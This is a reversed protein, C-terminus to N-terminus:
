GAAIGCNTESTEFLRDSQRLKIGLGDSAFHFHTHRAFSVSNKAFRFQPM